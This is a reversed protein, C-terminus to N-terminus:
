NRGAQTLEAKYQRMLQNIRKETVIERSLLEMFIEGWTTGSLNLTAIEHLALKPAGTQADFLARAITQNGSSLREFSELAASTAATAPSTSQALASPVVLLSAALALAAAISHPTM